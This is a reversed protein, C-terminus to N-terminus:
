PRDPLFAPLLACRQEILTSMDFGYVNKWFDVNSHRHRSTECGAIYMIAHDPYVAGDKALWKDRAFLVSPLMSEFLLFYGMWESIIIDVKDVPLHVDEVKSKILTVVGSLGNARVACLHPWDLAPSCHQSCRLLRRTGIEKAKDIIDARDIGFVQRRVVSLGISHAVASSQSLDPLFTSM